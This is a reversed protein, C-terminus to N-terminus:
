LGNRAEILLAGSSPDFSVPYDQLHLLFILVSIEDERSDAVRYEGPLELGIEHFYATVTSASPLDSGTIVKRWNFFVEKGQEGPTSLTVGESIESEPAPSVTEAGPPSQAYGGAIWSNWGGDLIAVREHGSRVINWWICTARSSVGTHYLIIFTEDSSGVQNLADAVTEPSVLCQTTGARALPWLRAGPIHAQRYSDEGRLDLVRYEDTYGKKKDLLYPSFLYGPENFGKAGKLSSLYRVLALAEEGEFNRGVFPASLRPIETQDLRKAIGALPVIRPYDISDGDSGHCRQCLSNYITQGRALLEQDSSAGRSEQANLRCIGTLVLIAFVIFTAPRRRQM